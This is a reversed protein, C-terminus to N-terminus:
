GPKKLKLGVLWCFAYLYPGFHTAYKRDVSAGFRALPIALKGLIPIAALPIALRSLGRYGQIEEVAFYKRITRFNKFGFPWEWDRDTQFPRYLMRVTFVMPDTQLPDMSVLIGGPKLIRFIERCLLDFNEFHHLVSHAYVVDFSADAFDTAFFDCAIAEASCIGEQRLRDQLVGIAKESLDIGVYTKAAHAIELSLDNGSFCGLDLVRSNSLDGLWRRHDSLATERVGAARDAKQFWRRLKTWLNTALNAADESGGSADFRSEYFAKQKLNISLTEKRDPM